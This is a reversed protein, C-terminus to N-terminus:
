TVYVSGTSPYFRLTSRPSNYVIPNAGDPRDASAKPSGLRFIDSFEQSPALPPPLPQRRPPPVTFTPELFLSLLCVCTYVNLVSNHYCKNQSDTCSLVLWMLVM